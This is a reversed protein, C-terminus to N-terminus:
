KNASNTSGTGNYYRAVKISFAPATSDAGNFIEVTVIRKKVSKTEEEEDTISLRKYYDTDKIQLKTDYQLLDLDHYKIARVFEAESVGYNQAQMVSTSKSTQKFEMDVVKTTAFSILGVLAAAVVVMIFLASGKYKKRNRFDSM